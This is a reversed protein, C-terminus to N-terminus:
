KLFSEPDLNRDRWKLRWCLHPGTSRGKSGVAGITQGRRVLEGPSVDVRGLHLYKSLLGQGHDIVIMAGEFYLDEDALTVIGDAPSRIPSGLPAALDVGYHPRKSLGNLIRQAGFPSTKRGELPSDFGQRFASMKARSADGIKKRASSSEIRSRQGETYQDVQEPPLGDIRSVSYDRQAISFTHEVVEGSPLWVLAVETPLADRDFGVVFYGEKDPRTDAEGLQIRSGPATECVVVGGQKAPGDCRVVEDTTPVRSNREAGAASHRNLKSEATLDDRQGAGNSDSASILFAVFLGLLISGGVNHQNSNQIKFERRTCDL